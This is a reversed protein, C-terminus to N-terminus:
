GKMQHVLCSPFLCIYQQGLGPGERPCLSVHTPSVWPPGRPVSNWVPPRM